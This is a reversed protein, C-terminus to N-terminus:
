SSPYLLEAIMRLAELGQLALKTVPLSESYMKELEDIYQAQVHV